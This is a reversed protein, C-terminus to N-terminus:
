IVELCVVIEDGSMEGTWRFGIGTYLKEAVSNDPEFSTYIEKPNFREKLYEVALLLAERGYGKNQYREDIM